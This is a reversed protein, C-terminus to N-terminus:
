FLWGLSLIMAVQIAATNGSFKRKPCKNIEHELLMNHLVATTIKFIAVWSNSNLIRKGSVTSFWQFYRQWLNSEYGNWVDFWDFPTSLNECM